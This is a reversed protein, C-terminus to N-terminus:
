SKEKRNYERIKKFYPTTIFFGPYGGTLGKIAFFISNDEYDINAGFNIAVSLWESHTDKDKADLRLLNHGFMSSPSNLHYAPFIMTVQHDPVQSRWEKYAKCEVKPLQKFPLQKKLWDFRAVFRCQPHEDGLNEQQYFATITALLEAHPNEKGYEANFFRADDAQSM